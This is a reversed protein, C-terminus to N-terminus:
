QTDTHKNTQKNKHTTTQKHTQRFVNKRKIITHKHTQINTHKNTHKYTQTDSSFCKKKKNNHTQTDTHKHAQTNIHRHTQIDSSFCKKRKIITHKHTQPQYRKITQSSVQNISPDSTSSSTAPSFYIIDNAGRRGL